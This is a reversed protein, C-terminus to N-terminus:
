SDRTSYDFIFLNNVRWVVGGGRNFRTHAVLGDGTRLSPGRTYHARGHRQYGRQYPSASAERVPAVRIPLMIAEDGIGPVHKRFGRSKNGEM